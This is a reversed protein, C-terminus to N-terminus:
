VGHNVEASKRASVAEDKSDFFGLNFYTKNKIIEAKWKNTNKVFYVGVCGSTNNCREKISLGVHTWTKGGLIYSINSHTVGIKDAIEKQNFGQSHFDFILRVADEDHRGCRLDTFHQKRRQKLNTTSGIYRKRSPEHVIAYIWGM